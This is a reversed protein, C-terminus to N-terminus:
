NCVNKRRQYLGLAQVKQRERRISDCQPIGPKTIDALSKIGYFHNYLKALFIMDNERAEPYQDMIRIVMERITLQERVVFM